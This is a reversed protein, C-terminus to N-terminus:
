SNNNHSDLELYAVAKFLEENDLIQLKLLNLIASDDSNISISKIKKLVNKVYKDWKAPNLPINKLSIDRIKNYSKLSYDTQFM